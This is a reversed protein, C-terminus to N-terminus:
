GESYFLHSGARCVFFERKAWEPPTEVIDPNYYLVAGPCPNAIRDTLVDVVVKEIEVYRNFYKPQLLESFQVTCVGDYQCKIDGPRNENRQYIVNIMRDPFKESFM